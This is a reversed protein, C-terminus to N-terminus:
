HGTLALLAPMRARKSPAGQLPWLIRNPPHLLPTLWLLISSGCSEDGWDDLSKLTGLSESFVIYDHESKKQKQQAEKLAKAQNSVKRKLANISDIVKYCDKLIHRVQELSNLTEPMYKRIYTAMAAGHLEVANVKDKM